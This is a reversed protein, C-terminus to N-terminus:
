DQDHATVWRASRDRVPIALADNSVGSKGGLAVEPAPAPNVPSRVPADTRATAAAIVLGYNPALVLVLVAFACLWRRSTM